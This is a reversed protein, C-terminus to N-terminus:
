HKSATMSFFNALQQEEPEAAAQYQGRSAQKAPATQATNSPVTPKKASGMEFLPATFLKSQCYKGYLSGLTKTIELFEQHPVGDPFAKAYEEVAAFILRQASQKVDVSQEDKYNGIRWQLTSKFTRRLNDDNRKKAEAEEKAKEEALKRAEAEQQAKLVALGKYTDDAPKYKNIDKLAAEICDHPYHGLANNISKYLVTIDLSSYFTEGAQIVYTKKHHVSSNYSSFLATVAQIVLPKQIAVYRLVAKKSDKYEGDKVFTNDDRLEAVRQQVFMRNPACTMAPKKGTEYEFVQRYVHLQDLSAVFSKLGKEVSTASPPPSSDQPSFGFM